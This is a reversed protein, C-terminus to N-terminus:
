LFSCPIENRVEFVAGNYEERAQTRPMHFPEDSRFREMTRGTKGLAHTYYGGNELDFM